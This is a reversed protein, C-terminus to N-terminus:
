LQLTLSAFILQLQAWGYRLSVSGTHPRLFSRCIFTVTSLTTTHCTTMVALAVSVSLCSLTTSSQTSSKVIIARMSDTQLFYSGSFPLLPKISDTITTKERKMNLNTDYSVLSKEKLMPHQKWLPTWYNLTMQLSGCLDPTLALTWSRLTSIQHSSLCSPLAWMQQEHKWRLWESKLPTNLFQFYFLPTQIYRLRQLNGLVHVTQECSDKTINFLTKEIGMLLKRFKNHKWDAHYYFSFAAKVTYHSYFPSTM